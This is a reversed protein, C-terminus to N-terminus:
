SPREPTTNKYNQLLNAMVSVRTPMLNSNQILSLYSCDSDNRFKMDNCMKIFFFSKRFREFQIGVFCVRGLFAKRKSLTTEHKVAVAVIVGPECKSLPSADMARTVPQYSAAQYLHNLIVFYTFHCLHGPAQRCPGLCCSCKAEIPLCKQNLIM